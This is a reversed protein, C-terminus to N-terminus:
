VYVCVFVDVCVCSDVCVRARASVYLCVSVCVCVWMCVRVCLCRYYDLPMWHTATPAKHFVYNFGNGKQVYVRAHVSVTSM